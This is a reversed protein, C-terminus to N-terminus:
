NIPRKGAVADQQRATLEERRVLEGEQLSWKRRVRSIVSWDPDARKWAKKSDARCSYALSVPM